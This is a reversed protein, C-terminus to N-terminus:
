SGSWAYTLDIRGRWRERGASCAATIQLGVLQWGPLAVYSTSGDLPLSIAHMDGPGRERGIYDASIEGNIAIGHGLTGTSETM